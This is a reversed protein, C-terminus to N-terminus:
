ENILSNLTMRYLLERGFNIMRDDNVRMESYSTQLISFFLARRLANNCGQSEPLLM